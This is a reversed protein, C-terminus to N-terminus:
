PQRRAGPHREQRRKVSAKIALRAKLAERQTKWRHHDACLWRLDEVDHADPREWHDADTGPARCRGGNPYRWECRGGAIAKRLLRRQAWDLPLEARRDSSAWRGSTV